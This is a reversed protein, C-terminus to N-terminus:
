RLTTKGACFYRVGSETRGEAETRGSASIARSGLSFTVDCKASEVQNRLDYARKTERKVTLLLCRKRTNRRRGLLGPREKLSSWSQLERRNLNEELQRGHQIKKQAFFSFHKM